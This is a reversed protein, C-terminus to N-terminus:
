EGQKKDGYRAKSQKLVFEAPLPEGAFFKGRKGRTLAWRHLWTIGGKGTFTDASEYAKDKLAEDLTIFSYGRKQIMKVLKDLYDANLKNAHILLVQPIEYNLLDISQKEYYAIVKEMYSIYEDGLRKMMARNQNGAAKDYAAAFVWESNDITVPAIVCRREKLFDELSNKTKLDRGTHLYPHRFYRLQKGKEKLLKKIIREGKIVDEKFQALPVKHLDMHSFTHNGLELGAALWLRLLEVKNNDLRSNLYLKEENVFGVAPINHATIHKILARTIQRRAKIDRFARSNVPLDDITIVMQRQKDRNATDAPNVGAPLLIVPIM